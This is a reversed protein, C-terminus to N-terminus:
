ERGIKKDWEWSSYVEKKIGLKALIQKAKKKLEEVTEKKLTNDERSIVAVLDSLEFPVDTNFEPMKPDEKVWACEGPFPRLYQVKSWCKPPNDAPFVPKVGKSQLKNKAFVLAYNGVPFSRRTTFEGTKVNKQALIKELRAEDRTHHYLFPTEFECGKKWDKITPGLSRMDGKM